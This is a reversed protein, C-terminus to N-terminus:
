AERRLSPNEEDLSWKSPNELIYKRTAELEPEDRIVREFYNRQWLRKEFPPWVRDHVGRIYNVTTISKFAQIIRGISSNETGRPRIYTQTGRSPRVRPEGRRDSPRDIDIGYPRDKHDGQAVGPDSKEEHLVFIAHLHNPMVVFEDIELRDFRTPLGQIEERLMEGAPSLKVAGELVDGFLCARTNECITVFYAGPSSYDFHELRLSQRHHSEPDFTM